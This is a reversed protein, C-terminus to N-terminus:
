TRSQADFGEQWADHRAEWQGQPEGTVSATNQPELMPNTKPADGRAAAKAGQRELEARERDCM